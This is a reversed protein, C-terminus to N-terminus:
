AAQIATLAQSDAVQLPPQLPVGNKTTIIDSLDLLIESQRREFTATNCGAASMYTNVRLVLADVGVSALVARTKLGRGNDDWDARAKCYAELDALITRVMPQAHLPIRFEAKVQWHSRRSHNMIAAKALEANPVIYPITEGSSAITTCDVSFSQVYGKLNRGPIEVKEGITFPRSMLLSAGAVLNGAVVQTALGLSLSGVSGLALLPGMPAGLLHLGTLVCAASISRSVLTSLGLLTSRQVQSPHDRAFAALALQSGHAAARGLTALSGLEWLKALNLLLSYPACWFRLLAEAVGIALSFIVFLRLPEALHAHLLRGKTGLSLADHAGSDAAAAPGRSAWRLALLSASSAAALVGVELGLAELPPLALFAALTAAVQSILRTRGAM